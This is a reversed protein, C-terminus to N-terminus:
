CIFDGVLKSVFNLNQLKKKQQKSLNSLSELSKHVSQCVYASPFDILFIQFNKSRIVLHFKTERIKAEMADICTHM